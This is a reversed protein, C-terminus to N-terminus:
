QQFTSRVRGEMVGTGTALDVVLKDGSLVTPGQTLLVSGSMVLTGAEPSYVADTSEAADAGNVFTVGGSAVMQEIENRGETNQAYDVAIRAAALRMPGQIVLVNGEFVAQGNENAVSLSDSTVEVPLSTDHTLEGVSLATGQALALVPSLALVLVALFSRM